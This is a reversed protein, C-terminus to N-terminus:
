PVVPYPVVALAASHQALAAKADQRCRYFAADAEAHGPRRDAIKALAARLPEVAVAPVMAEQEVPGGCVFCETREGHLGHEPCRAINVISM